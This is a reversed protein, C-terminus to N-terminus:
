TAPRATLASLGAGRVRRGPQLGAALPRSVGAPCPSGGVPRSRRASARTGRRGASVSPRGSGKDGAPRSGTPKQCIRTGNGRIRGLPSGLATLLLTQPLGRAVACGDAPAWGPHPRAPGRRGDRQTWIHYYSIGGFILPPECKILSHGNTHERRSTGTATFDFSPDKPFM